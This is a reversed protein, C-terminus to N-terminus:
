WKTYKDSSTRYAKVNVGASRALLIMRASVELASAWQYAEELLQGTAFIGHGRLAVIKYEKLAESALRAVEKSGATYESAIVPVKHLLYSGESDIPILENCEMSLVVTHVPHAHVVALAPTNQYIARHVPTETSALTIGSDDKWLGTEIIDEDTLHGLMSGRRTILIRDGVRISMNGGHSSIMEQDFLDKGFTKFDEYM